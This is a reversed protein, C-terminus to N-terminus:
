MSYEAKLKRILSSETRLPILKECPAATSHRRAPSAADGSTEASPPKSRPPGFCSASAPRHSSTSVNKMKDVRRGKRESPSGAESRLDGWSVTSSRLGGERFVSVNDRRGAPSCPASFSYFHEPSAGSAESPLGCNPSDVLRKFSALFHSKSRRRAELDRLKTAVGAKLAALAEERKLAAEEGRAKEGSKLTGTLEGPPDVLGPSLGASLSEELLEHRALTHLPRGSKDSFSQKKGALRGDFYELRFAAEEELSKWVMQLVHATLDMRNIYYLKTAGHAEVLWNRRMRPFLSGEGFFEGPGLRSITRGDSYFSPVDLEPNGTDLTVPPLDGGQAHKLQCEGEIIFYLREEEEANIVTKDECERLRFFTAIKEIEDPLLKFFSYISHLFEVRRIRALDFLPRFLRDFDEKGFVLLEIRTRATVTASRRTGKLLGIEGFYEGRALVNVAKLLNGNAIKVEAKGRLIIYFETSPESQHHVSTYAQYEQVRMVKTVEELVGQTVDKFLPTLQQLMICIKEVIEPTREELPTECLRRMAQLSMQQVQDRLSDKLGSGRTASSAAFKRFSPVATLKESHGNPKHSPRREGGPLNEPSGEPHGSGPDITARRKSHKKSEVSDRKPAVVDAQVHVKALKMITAVARVVKLRAKNKGSSGPRDAADAGGHEKSRESFAKLANALAEDRARLEMTRRELINVHKSAM